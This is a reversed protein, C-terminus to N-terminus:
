HTIDTMVIIHWTHGINAEMFFLFFFDEDLFATEQDVLSM